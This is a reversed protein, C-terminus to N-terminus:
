LMHQLTIVTCNIACHTFLIEEAENTFILKTHVCLWQVHVTQRMNGDVCVHIAMSM